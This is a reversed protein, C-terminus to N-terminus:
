KKELLEKKIFQWEPSQITRKHQMRTLQEAWSAIRKIEESLFDEYYAIIEDKTKDSIKLNDSAERLEELFAGKRLKKQQTL